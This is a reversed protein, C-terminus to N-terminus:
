QLSSSDDFVAEIMKKINGSYSRAVPVIKTTTLLHLKYGQSNGELYSVKKINVIYTRHCRQLIPYQRVQEEIESIKNRLLTKKEQDGETYFVEVYNGAAAICSITRHDLKIHEGKNTSTLVVFEDWEKLTSRNLIENLHEVEKLNVKYQYIQKYFIVGLAPMIGIIFTYKMVGLFTVWDPAFDFFYHAYLYNLTTIFFLMWVVWIVEKYVKWREESLLRPFVYPMVVMNLLSAMLTVIGFGFSVANQIKMPLQDMGYPKFALCFFGIFISIFIVLQLAQKSNAYFPYPQFFFEKVKQM